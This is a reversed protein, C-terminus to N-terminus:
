EKFYARLASGFAGVVLGLLAGILMRVYLSLVPNPAAPSVKVSFNAYEGTEHAMQDLAKTAFSERMLAYENADSPTWSVSVRYDGTDLREVEIPTSVIDFTGADGLFFQPERLLIGLREGFLRYTEVMYYGDYTFNEDANEDISGDRALSVMFSAVPREVVFHAAGLLAGAIVIAAIVRWSRFFMRAIDRFEKM